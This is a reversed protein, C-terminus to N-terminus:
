LLQHMQKSHSYFSSVGSVSNMPPLSLHTYDDNKCTSKKPKNIHLKVQNLLSLHHTFSIPTSKRSPSKIQTNQLDINDASKREKNNLTLPSSEMQADVRHRSRSMGGFTDRVQRFISRSRSSDSDLNEGSM